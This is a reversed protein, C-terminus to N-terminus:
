TTDSSSFKNVGCRTAHPQGTSHSVRGALSVRGTLPRGMGAGRSGVCAIVERCRGRWVGQWTLDIGYDLTLYHAADLMRGGGGFGRALGAAGRWVSAGRLLRGVKEGAGESSAGM